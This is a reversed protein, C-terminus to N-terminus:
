CQKKGTFSGAAPTMKKSFARHPWTTATNVWLSEPIPLLLPPGLPERLLRFLQTVPPGQAALATLSMRPAQQRPGWQLPSHQASSSQSLRCGWRSMSHNGQRVCGLLLSCSILHTYSSEPCKLILSKLNFIGRVPGKGKHSWLLVKGCHTSKKWATM